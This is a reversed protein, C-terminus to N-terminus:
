PKPNLAQETFLFEMVTKRNRRELNQTARSAKKGVEM